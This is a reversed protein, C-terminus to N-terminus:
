SFALFALTFTGFYPFFSSMVTATAVISSQEEQYENSM